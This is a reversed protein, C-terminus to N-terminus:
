VCKGAPCSQDKFSTAVECLEKDTGMIRQSQNSSVEVPPFENARTGDGVGRDENGGEVIVPDMQRLAVLM